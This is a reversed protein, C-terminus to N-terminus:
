GSYQKGGTAIADEERCLDMLYKQTDTAAAEAATNRLTTFRVQAGAGFYCLIGNRLATM